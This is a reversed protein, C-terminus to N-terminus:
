VRKVRVVDTSVSALGSRSTNVTKPGTNCKRPIEEGTEVGPWVVSAARKNVAKQASHTVMGGGSPVANM